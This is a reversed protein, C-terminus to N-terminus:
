QKFPMVISFLDAWNKITQSFRNWEHSIVEFSVTNKNPIIKEWYQLHKGKNQIIKVHNELHLNFASIIKPGRYHAGNREQKTLLKFTIYLHLKHYKEKVNNESNELNTDPM